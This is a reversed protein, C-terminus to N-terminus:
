QFQLRIIVNCHIFKKRHCVLRTRDVSVCDTLAADIGPQALLLKVIDKHGHEAACMLATSGEEDQLNVQAGCQLLLETTNKKGHSVSLM